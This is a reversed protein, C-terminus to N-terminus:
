TADAAPLGEEGPGEVVPMREGEEGRHRDPGQRGGEEGRIVDERRLASWVREAGLGAELEEVPGADHVAEAWPSGGRQVVRTHVSNEYSLSWVERLLNPVREGGEEVGDPAM